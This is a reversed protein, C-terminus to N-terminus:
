EAAEICHVPQHATEGTFAIEIRLAPDGFTIYSEVMAEFLWREELFTEHEPHRVFPLHAHLLLSLYGRAM